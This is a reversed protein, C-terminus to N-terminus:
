LMKNSASAKLLSSAPGYASMFGAILLKQQLLICLAFPQLRDFAQGLGQLKIFIFLYFIIFIM